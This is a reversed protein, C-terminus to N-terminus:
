TVAAVHCIPSQLLVDAREAVMQALIGVGRLTLFQQGGLEHAAPAAARWQHECRVLVIGFQARIRHAVVVVVVLLHVREAVRARQSRMCAPEIWAVGGVVHVATAHDPAARGVSGGQGVVRGVVADLAADGREDDAGVQDPLELEGLVHPDVVLGEVFEAVLVVGDASGLVACQIEGDRFAGDAFHVLSYRGERRQPAAGVEEQGPHVCQAVKGARCSLIVM